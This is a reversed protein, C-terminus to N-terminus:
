SGGCLNADCVRGLDNRELDILMVHEAREKPDDLLEHLLQEDRAKDDSRPRTGAIPRTAMIGNRIQLLREPSSSVVSVGDWYFLGAFPGPNTKCLSEYVRNADVGGVTAAWGRSLNAQYVDGSSIYDKAKAVANLFLAPDEEQVRLNSHRSQRATLANAAVIDAQVMELDFDSGPEAVLHCVGTDHRIILAATCRVAFAVPLISDSRLRLSPEVEAALEYGLFLFWGGSFPFAPDSLDVRETQWWADLATLFETQGEAGYGSVRGPAELVLADGQSLMLVDSGGLSSEAATSQLLFPYRRPALRHLAHLNVGAPLLTSNM